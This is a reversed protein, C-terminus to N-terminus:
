KKVMRVLELIQFSYDNKHTKPYDTKSNIYWEDWNIGPFFVDGEFETDVRTYYIKDALSITQHYIEAGGIIFIENQSQNEAFDIAEKVSGKKIVGEIERNQNRTIVINIRGSLPKGISEFTKRGMIIYHGMTVKKFHKLDDSLKWLLRNNKGIVNNKAVAVIITIIM